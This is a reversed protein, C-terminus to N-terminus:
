GEITSTQNQFTGVPLALTRDNIRKLEQQCAVNQVQFALAIETNGLVGPM